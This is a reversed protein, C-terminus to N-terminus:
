PKDPPPPPPRDGPPEDPGGTPRDKSQRPGDGGNRHLHDIRERMEKNMQDFKVRQDPTLQEAIEREMRDFVNRFEAGSRMRLRNLEEMNRHVIPRLQEEQAPTLNLHETLRKLQRPAWEGPGPRQSFRERGLRLTVFGGTVGGALFILVLVAVIKWPQNM